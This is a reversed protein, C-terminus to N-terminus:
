KLGQVSRFAKADLFFLYVRKGPIGAAKDQVRTQLISGTPDNPTPHPPTNVM